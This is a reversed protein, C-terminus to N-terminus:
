TNNSKNKKHKKKKNKKELLLRCVLDSHSQLESTHEESRREISPVCFNRSRSLSPRLTSDTNMGSVGDIVKQMEVCTPQAIAHAKQRVPFIPSTRLRVAPSIAPCTRTRAPASSMSSLFNLM